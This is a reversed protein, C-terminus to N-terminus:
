VVESLSDAVTDGFETIAAWSVTLTRTPGDFKVALDTLSEVGPADLIVRRFATRTRVPDFKAGIIEDHWALGQDLNAFFEGAYMQVRVRIGQAVGAAGSSMNLDTTVDLEGADTLKWDILDTKLLAM